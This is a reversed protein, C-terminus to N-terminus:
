VEEVWSDLEGKLTFLNKAEGRRRAIASDFSTGKYTAVVAAHHSKAQVFVWDVVLDPRANGANPGTAIPPRTTRSRSLYITVSFGKATLTDALADASAPIFEVGRKHAPIEITTGYDGALASRAEAESRCAPCYVAGDDGALLPLEHDRCRDFPAPDQFVDFPAVVSKMIRKLLKKKGM